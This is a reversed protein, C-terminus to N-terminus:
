VISKLVDEFTAEPSYGPERRSFDSWSTTNNANASGARNITPPHASANEHRVDTLYGTLLRIVCLVNPVAVRALPLEACRLLISHLKDVQLAYLQLRVM